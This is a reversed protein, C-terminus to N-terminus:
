WGAGDAGASGIRAPSSASLAAAEEAPPQQLMRAVEALIHQETERDRTVVQWFQDPVPPDDEDLPFVTAQSTAKRTWTSRREGPQHAREVFITVRLDIPGTWTTLDIENSQAGTYEPGLLQASQQPPQDPVVAPSFEFRARRRQLSVTGEIVHEFTSRPWYWPECLTPTYVPETEILGSRRDRIAAPAGHNRAVVLAADFAQAYHASEIALSDGVTSTTTCGASTLAVLAVFAAVKLRQQYAHPHHV